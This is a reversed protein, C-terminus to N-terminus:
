RRLRRKLAVSLSVGRSSQRFRVEGFGFLGTIIGVVCAVVFANLAALAAVPAIGRFWLIVGEPFLVFYQHQTITATREEGPPPAEISVTTSATEGAPITLADDAIATDTEPELPFTMTMFADNRIEFETEVQEGPEIDSSDAVADGDVVVESTGGTFVMAANAPVLVLILVVVALKRTDLRESSSTQKKVERTPGARRKQVESWCFLAIGLAFIGAGIRGSSELGTIAVIPGLVTAVAAQAETVVTGFGPVTVVTDGIQLAEAVIQDETVPPEPGDQDTFPNADGQTIYGEDTEAVIRHTTLGGGEIEEAQFTVVDGAEPSGTAAAPVAVFGDDTEITPEMSETEVYALLMPQGLVQGLALLLFVVLLVGTIIRGSRKSVM